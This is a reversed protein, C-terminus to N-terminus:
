KDKILHKYKDSIKYYLDIRSEISEILEELEENKADLAIFMNNMKTLFSLAKELDSVNVMVSEGLIMQTIITVVDEIKAEIGNALGPLEPMAINNMDEGKITAEM